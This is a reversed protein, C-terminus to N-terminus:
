SWCDENRILQQLYYKVVKVPLVLKLWDPCNLIYLEFIYSEKYEPVKRIYRHNQMSYNWM